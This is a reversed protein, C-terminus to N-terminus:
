IKPSKTLGDPELGLREPGQGPRGAEPTRLGSRASLDLPNINRFDQDQWEVQEEEKSKEAPLIMSVPELTTIFLVPSGFSNNMYAEEIDDLERGLHDRGATVAEAVDMSELLHTYMTEFFANSRELNIENQMGVVAPINIKTFEYAVGRLKQDFYGIKASDCSQFSILLPQRINMKERSYFSAFKRDDV